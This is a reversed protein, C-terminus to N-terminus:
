RQCCSVNYGGQTKPAIEPASSANELALPVIFPIRIRKGTTVPFLVHPVCWRNCRLCSLTIVGRGVRVAM